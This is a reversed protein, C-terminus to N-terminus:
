ARRLRKSLASGAISRAATSSGSLGLTNLFLPGRGAIRAAVIFARDGCPLLREGDIGRARRDMAVDAIGQEHEAADVLRFFGEILFIGFARGARGRM